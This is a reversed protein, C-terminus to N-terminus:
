KNRQIKDPPQLPEYQWVWDGENNDRRVSNKQVVIQGGDDRGNWGISWLAYRGEPTVRYRTPQGDIVDPPVHDLYVPVLEDLRAPYGHRDLYFQELACATLAHDVDAQSAVMKTLVSSYVPVGTKVLWTYPMMTFHEAVSVGARAKELSVHHAPVSITEIVNDQLFRCGFTKNQDYWGRPGLDILAGLANAMFDGDGSGQMSGFYQVAHFAGGHAKFYDATECMFTARECRISQQFGALYNLRRLGTKIQELESSSWRRAALGEWIPQMMIGTQTVSVLQAILIPDDATIEILRQGLALDRMAAEDRGLALNATARLRLVTTLCQLTNYHPLAIRAPQPDTWNVPFRTRPRAAAARTFEDLIPGYKTLALLVDEAPLQAQSAHLFDPRRRYYQQWSTLDLLHGGTWEGAPKPSDIGAMAPGRPMVAIEDNVPDSAQPKAFTLLGTVPDVRYNYMRVFMPAMALNEADPVAPPIFAAIDLREGRAELEQRCGAWAHAGRWDEIGYFAGVMGVLVSVVVAVVLIFRPALKM